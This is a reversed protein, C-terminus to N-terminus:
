LFICFLLCAGAESYITKRDVIMLILSTLGLGAGVERVGEAIFLYEKNELQIVALDLVHHLSAAIKKLIITNRKMAQIKGM